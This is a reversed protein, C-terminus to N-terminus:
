SLWNPDAKLNELLTQKKSPSLWSAEVGNLILQRIDERTFSLKQELLRFEEALSNNFMKPDDTNVTVLLGSSFYKKIPHAEITSSVRTRVNSIPCMELPIRHKMLYEILREDEYARTGHGIRDVKLDRVAGWISSAGAAEGAHASTKFGLERAKAYVESFIQPPFENESGGIGIGTIDLDRVENIELLTEMGQKAGYDRVLDIILVVEINPVQSLGKRIAEIIKQSSLGFRYFDPPSIFAEVYKINQSALDKATNAAIFTFDEYERLFKNKWVWTSIFHSFDKYLFKEELAELSPIEKTEGYKKILEWLSGMPIAGELHLHLEVKPVRAHWDNISKDHIIGASNKM